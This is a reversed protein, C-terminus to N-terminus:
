AFDEAKVRKQKLGLNLNKIGQAEHEVVQRVIDVLVEFISAADRKLTGPSTATIVPPPLPRYIKSCKM